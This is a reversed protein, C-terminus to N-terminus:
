PSGFVDDDGNATDDMGTGVSDFLGTDGETSPELSPQSKEKKAVEESSRSFNGIYVPESAASERLCTLEGKDDIFFLRDSVLNPIVKPAFINSAKIETGTALDVSILINSANTAYLHDKGIAVVERINRLPSAWLNDGNKMNMGFVRGDDSLVFVANKSPVPPRNVQTALRRKWRISETRDTSCSVVTGDHGCFLYGTEVAVPLSPITENVTVSTWLRANQEIDALILKSGGAWGVYRRDLSPSVATRNDSGIRLVVPAVSTSKVDYAILRGGVSPVLAKGPMASPSGTPSFALRRTSLLSGTDLAFVYLHNGNTVVVFDDSVGPGFMPLNPNGAEATWLSAGTESDIATVIGNSSLTIVYTLQRSVPPDVIELKKGLISYRKVLLEAQKTAGALGQKPPKSFREGKLSATNIAEQDIEDGNFTQIIRDGQKVTVVERKETSHPWVIFSNEGHALPVGGINTEWAISLGLESAANANVDASSSSCAAAVVFLSLLGTWLQITKSPTRM